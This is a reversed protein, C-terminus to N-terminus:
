LERKQKIERYFALTDGVEIIVNGEFSIGAERGKEVEDAEKKDRQLELLRGQGIKASDRWVEIQAPKSIKGEVVKGGVIMRPPKTRFVALIKLRGLDERVIDSSLKKSVLERVAQVLEYIIDFNMYTIKQRQALEQLSPKIKAHFGVIKAGSSGALKIDNENTEGAEAKLIRIVVEDQPITKLMDKIAEISGTVDTKLILNLVKKDEGVNLVEIEQRRKRQKAVLYTKIKEELEAEDGIIEFKEGLVPVDKLGCVLIPMGASAKSVSKGQFDELIKITGYTSQTLILDRTKLQGELLLLTATPGRMADLHSEIVIGQGLGDLPATIEEMEAVLLIIELLEEIGQGTKASILVSPIKGGLSEVLIEQRALQQKIKEVQITANPKDIKNFVVIAPLGSKKIHSIAEITQPKIGDDAAVVLLAIDAVKAGRSRMASFAEHGPTDLFTITKDQHRVQYAGIHQTIGGAEQEVVKTQRIYDLISSKGHDVHGLVVVIPPRSVMNLEKNSKNEMKLM